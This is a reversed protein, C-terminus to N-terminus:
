KEPTHMGFRMRIINAQGNAHVYAIFLNDYTADNLEDYDMRGTLENALIPITNSHGVILVAGGPYSNLIKKLFGREGPKYDQIKLNKDNATPLVTQQTRKYPTSYIADLKVHKLIYMLEDARKEGEPTLIPDNSGDIVKEAHRVLFITTVFDQSTSSGYEPIITGLCVIMVFLPFLKSKINLIRKMKEEKRIEVRTMLLYM